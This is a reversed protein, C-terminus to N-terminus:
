VATGTVSCGLQVVDRRVIKKLALIGSQATDLVRGTRYHFLFFYRHRFWDPTPILVGPWIGSQSLPHQFTSAEPSFFCYLSNFFSPTQLWLLAPISSFLFFLFFRFALFSYAIQVSCLPIVKYLELTDTCDHSNPGGGGERAFSHPEGWSGLPLLWVRKSPPPPPPCILVM